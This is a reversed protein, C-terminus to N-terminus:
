SLDHAKEGQLDYYWATEPDGKRGASRNTGGREQTRALWNVLFRFWNKKHKKPNAKVWEAAKLLETKIDCAPYAASWATKQEETIGTWGCLDFDFCIPVPKTEPPKKARSPALTNLAMPAPDPSPAPAPSPANSLHLNPMSAAHESCAEPMSDAPKRKAHRMRAAHRARETREPAGMVYPQHEAWDHLSYGECDCHDLFGCALLAQVFDLPKGPWGAEIAIDTEDMRSLRGDPHCMAATIWLDLLYDTAGPGLMLSLRKRKRHGKFSVSIRIDTNV